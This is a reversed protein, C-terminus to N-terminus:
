SRTGHHIVRLVSRLRTRLRAATVLLPDLIRDSMTLGGSQRLAERYVGAADLNGYSLLQRLRRRLSLIKRKEVSMPLFHGRRTAADACLEFVRSEFYLNRRINGDQTLSAKHIRRLCLPEPICSIAFEMTIRLWCEIDQKKLMSENFFGVEEFVSGRVFVTSPPMPFANLYLEGFVWENDRRRFARPGSLPKLNEDCDILSTYCLGLKSSARFEASQREIMEPCWVDDADLFAVIDGISAAIGSNRAAPLGRNASHTLIKITKGFSLLVDKTGDTSGDDVVIIEAPPQTQDIVSQIASALFLASNFAPIVVSVTPSHSFEATMTM